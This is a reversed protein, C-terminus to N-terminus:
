PENDEYRKASARAGDPRLVFNDFDAPKAPGDKVLRLEMLELCPVVRDSKFFIQKPQYAIHIGAHVEEHEQPSPAAIASTLDWPKELNCIPTANVGRANAQITKISRLFAAIPQRILVVDLTDSCKDEQPVTGFHSANRLFRVGRDFGIHQGDQCGWM